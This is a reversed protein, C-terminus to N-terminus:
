FAGVSTFSSNVLFRWSFYFYGIGTNGGTIVVIKDDLRKNNTCVGGALWGIGCHKFIVWIDCKKLKPM